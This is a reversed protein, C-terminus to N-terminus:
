DAVFTLLVEGEEVVELEYTYLGVPLPTEGVYDIPQLTYTTDAAKISIFAYRYATEYPLYDSYDGPAVNTHLSEQEGVQVEDYTFTSANKIRINVANVEDDRDTCSLAAMLGLLLFFISFRKM